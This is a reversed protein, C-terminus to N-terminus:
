PAQQSSVPLSRLQQKMQQIDRNVQLRYADIAAIAEENDAVRANLNQKLMALNKEFSNIKDAVKQSQGVLDNTELKAALSANVVAELSKGTKDQASKLDTIEKKRATMSAQLGKLTKSQTELTNKQAEINTRNRDYSVGWLKKIEAWHKDLEIEQDKLKISLSAGSQNLSEDTSVIKDELNDFRSQLQALQETQQVFFYGLGGLGMMLILVLLKWLGGGSEKSPRPNEPVGRSKSPRSAAPKGRGIREDSEPVIPDLRSYDKDTM